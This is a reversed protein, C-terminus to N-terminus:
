CNTDIELGVPMGHMGWDESHYSRKGLGTRRTLPWSPPKVEHSQGRLLSMFPLGRAVVIIMDTLPDAAALLWFVIITMHRVPLSVIHAYNPLRGRQDCCGVKMDRLCHAICKRIEWKNYYKSGVRLCLAHWKTPLRTWLARRYWLFTSSPTIICQCNLFISPSISIIYLNPKVIYGCWSRKPDGCHCWDSVVTVSCHCDQETLRALQASVAM